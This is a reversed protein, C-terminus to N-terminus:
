VFAFLRFFSNFKIFNVLNIAEFPLSPDDLFYAPTFAPLPYRGPQVLLKKVKPWSTFETVSEPHFLAIVYIYIL